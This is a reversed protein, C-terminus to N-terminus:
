NGFRKGNLDSIQLITFGDFEPPLGKIQVAQHVINIHNNDYITYDVMIIFLVECLIVLLLLLFKLFKQVFKM